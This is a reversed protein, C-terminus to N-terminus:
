GLWREKWREVYALVLMDKSGFHKYFSMKSVGSSAVIDDVGVRNVSRRYFLDTAVDLIRERVGGPMTERTM